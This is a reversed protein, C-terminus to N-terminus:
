SGSLLQIGQDFVVIVLGNRILNSVLVLLIFLVVPTELLGATAAIVSGLGPISVLLLMVSRDREFHEEISALKDQELSPMHELIIERGGKGIRFYVLKALVGVVSIALVIAWLGFNGLDNM